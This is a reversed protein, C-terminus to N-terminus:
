HQTPHHSAPAIGLTQEAETIDKEFYAEQAPPQLGIALHGDDTIMWTGYPLEADYVLGKKELVTIVNLADGCKLNKPLPHIAGYTRSAAAELVTQQNTTLKIKTM